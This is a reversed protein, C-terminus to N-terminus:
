LRCLCVLTPIFACFAVIIPLVLSSNDEAYPNVAPPGSKLKERKAQDSYSTKKDDPRTGVDPSEEEEEEEEEEAKNLLDLPPLQNVDEPKGKLLYFACIKPNDAAGKLFEVTLINNFSSSETGVNLTGKKISFPVIEDHATAHGVKDFIDLSQVIMHQNNLQVNFVKQESGTFYVESFKLVLVYDGDSKVPVDYSFSEDHWRETQYLVQDNHSVRRINFRQGYDSAVGVKLPDAIYQIGNSDVHQTGGANVAYIVDNAFTIDIFCLLALTFPIVLSETAWM